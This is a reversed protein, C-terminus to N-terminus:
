WSLQYAMSNYVFYWSLDAVDFFMPCSRQKYIVFDFATPLKTEEYYAYLPYFPILPVGINYFFARAYGNCIHCESVHRHRELFCNELWPHAHCGSSREIVRFRRAEDLYHSLAENTYYNGSGPMQFVSKKFVDKANLAIDRFADEDFETDQQQSIFTETVNELYREFLDDDVRYQALGNGGSWLLLICVFILVNM